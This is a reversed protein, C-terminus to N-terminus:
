HTFCWNDDGVLGAKDCIDAKDCINQSFSAFLAAITPERSAPERCRHQKTAQPRLAAFPATRAKAFAPIGRNDEYCSDINLFACRM